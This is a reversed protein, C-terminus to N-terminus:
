VQSVNLRNVPLVEGPLAKIDGITTSSLQNPCGGKIDFNMWALCHFGKDFVLRQVAAM